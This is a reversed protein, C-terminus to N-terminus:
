NALPDLDPRERSPTFPTGCEPCRDVSARLDYGCTECFQSGAAKEARYRPRLFLVTIMPGFSFFMVCLGAAIGMMTALGVLCGPRRIVILHAPVTALLEALSGAFIMRSFRSLLSYRPQNRAYAFLLAGWCIWNLVVTIWFVEVEISNQLELLELVALLLGAFLLGVMTAAVFVPLVLRRRRLPRCLQITGAGLILMAQSAFMIGLFAVILGGVEDPWHMAIGFLGLILLSYLALFVWRLVRLDSRLWRRLDGLLTSPDLRPETMATLDYGSDTNNSFRAPIACAIGAYVCCRRPRSSRDRFYLISDFAKSSKQTMRFDRIKGTNEAYSVRRRTQSDTEIWTRARPM